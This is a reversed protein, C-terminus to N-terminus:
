CDEGLRIFIYHVIQFATSVLVGLVPLCILWKRGFRDSLAGAFFVYIISPWSSLMQDKIAFNNKYIQVENQVEDHEEAGLNDCVTDNYGKVVSCVKWIMLQTQTGSGYAIAGSIAYVFIAPEITLDRRLWRWASVLPNEKTSSMASTCPLSSSVELVREGGVRKKGSKKQCSSHALGTHQPIALSCALSSSNREGELNEGGRPM